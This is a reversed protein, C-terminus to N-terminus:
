PLTHCNPATEDFTQDYSNVVRHARRDDVLVRQLCAIISSRGDNESYKDHNTSSSWSPKIGRARKARACHHAFTSGNRPERLTRLASGARSSARACTDLTRSSAHDDKKQRMRQTTRLVSSARSSSFTCTDLTFASRPLQYTAVCEAIKEAANIGDYTRRPSENLAGNVVCPLEPCCTRAHIGLLSTKRAYGDCPVFARCFYLILSSSVSSKRRSDCPAIQHAYCSAM